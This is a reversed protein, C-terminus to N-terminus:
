ANKGTNDQKDQNRLDSLYMYSARVVVEEHVSSDIEMTTDTTFNVPLQKKIYRCTYTLPTAGSYLLLEIRHSSFNVRWIENGEPKLFPNDLNNAIMNHKIPIVRCKRTATNGNCDTYSITASESIIYQLATPSTSPITVSYGNSNHPSSILATFDMATANFDLLLPALIRSIRETVEFKEINNILSDFKETIYNQYAYNIYDEIITSMVPDQIGHKEMELNFRHQLEFTNM